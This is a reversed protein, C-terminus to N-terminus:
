LSRYISRLIYNVLSLWCWSNPSFCHAEALSSLHTALQLLCLARACLETTSQRHSFTVAVQSSSSFRFAPPLMTATSDDLTEAGSAASMFYELYTTATERRFDDNNDDQRRSGDDDDVSNDASSTNSIFVATTTTMDDLVSRYSSSMTTAKTTRPALRLQFLVFYFPTTTTMTPVPRLQSLHLCRQRRPERWIKKNEDWRCFCTKRSTM